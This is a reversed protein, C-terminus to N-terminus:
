KLLLDMYTGSILDEKRVGLDAMLSEAILKGQDLTQDESLVVQLFL